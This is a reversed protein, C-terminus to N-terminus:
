GAAGPRARRDRRDGIAVAGRADRAPGPRAQAAAQHEDASRALGRPQRRGAGRDWRGPKHDLVPAARREDNGFRDRRRALLEYSDALLRTPVAALQGAGRHLPRRPTPDACHRRTPTTPATTTTDSYTVTFSNDDALLASPTAIAGAAGAPDGIFRRQGGAALTIRTTVWKRSVIGAAYGTSTVARADTITASGFNALPLTQCAYSGACESPAEVIWEASTLDLTSDTITRTFSKHRTVDVLQLRVKHGTVDVSASLQDGPKVTMRITRSPAPVLEYWASSIVRGTASCDTETGIQELANSRESYGGLGVWVSSYTREGPM